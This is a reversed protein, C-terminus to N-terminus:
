GSCKSKQDQRKVKQNQLQKRVRKLGSKIKELDNSFRAPKPNELLLIEEELLDLEEEILVTEKFKVLEEGSISKNLYRILEKQEEQLDQVLKEYTLHKIDGKDHAKALITRSNRNLQLHIELFEKDRQQEGEIYGM